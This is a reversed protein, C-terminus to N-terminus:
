FRVTECGSSVNGINISDDRQALIQGDGTLAFRYTIDSNGRDEHLYFTLNSASIPLANPTGDHYFVSGNPNFVVARASRFNGGSNTDDCIVVQPAYGEFSQKSSGAFFYNGPNTVCNNANVINAVAACGPRNEGRAAAAACEDTTNAAGRCIFVTFGSNWNINNCGANGEIACTKALVVRRGQGHSEYRALSFATRFDTSIANMRQSALIRQLQPVGWAAIIAMLAIAVILEILTFGKQSFNLSQNLKKCNFLMPFIFVKTLKTTLYAKSNLNKVM